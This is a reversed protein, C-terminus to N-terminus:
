EHSETRRKESQHDGFRHSNFGTETPIYAPRLAPSFVTFDKGGEDDHRGEERCHYRQKEFQAISNQNPLFSYDLPSSSHRRRTLAEREPARCFNEPAPLASYLGVRERQSKKKWRRRRAQTM